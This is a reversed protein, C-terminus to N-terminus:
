CFASIFAFGLAYCSNLRSAQQGPADNRLHRLSDIHTGIHDGLVVLYSATLWTVGFKAAGIREAFQEWSEYMAMSPRVVRPFAIMDNHVNMSLDILKRAM